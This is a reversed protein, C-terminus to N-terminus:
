RHRADRFNKATRVDTRAAGTPAYVTGPEFRVRGNGVAPAFAGTSHRPYFRASCTEPPWGGQDGNDRRRHAGTGPRRVIPVTIDERLVCVWRRVLISEVQSDIFDNGIIAVTGLKRVVTFLQRITQGAVTVTLRLVGLVDFRHQTVSHMAEPPLM